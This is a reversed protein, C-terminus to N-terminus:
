WPGAHFGLPHMVERLACESATRGCELAQPILNSHRAAGPTGETPLNVYVLAAELDLHM